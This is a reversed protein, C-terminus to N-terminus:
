GSFHPHARLPCVRWQRGAGKTRVKARRTSEACMRMKRCFEADVGARQPTQNVYITVRIM